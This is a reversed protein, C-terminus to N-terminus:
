QTKESAKEELNWLNHPLYLLKKCFSCFGCSILFEADSHLLFDLLLRDATGKNQEASYPKFLAMTIGYMDMTKM